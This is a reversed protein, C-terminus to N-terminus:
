ALIMENIYINLGLDHVLFSDPNQVTASFLQAFVLSVFM